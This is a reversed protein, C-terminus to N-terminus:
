LHRHVSGVGVGLSAERLRKGMNRALQFSIKSAIVAHTEMLGLFDARFFVALHCNDAARAQATRPSNELLAIDGFFTGAALTALLGTEPEGQRCILVAGDLVIYIAQGDEGEDFIVEDKLFDREHLLGDIIALESPVLDVFLSLARLKELRPTSNRRRFPNLGV